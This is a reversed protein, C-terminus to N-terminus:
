FTCFFDRHIEGVRCRKVVDLKVIRVLRIGLRRHVSDFFRIALPRVNFM